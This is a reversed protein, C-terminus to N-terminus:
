IVKELSMINLAIEPLNYIPTPPSRQTWIERLTRYDGFKTRIRKTMAYSILIAQISIILNLFDKYTAIDYSDYGEGTKPPRDRQASGEDRYIKCYDSDEQYKSGWKEYDKGPFHYHM